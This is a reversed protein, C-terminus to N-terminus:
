GKMIHRLLLALYRLTPIPRLLVTIQSHIKKKYRLVAGLAYIGIWGYIFTVATGYILFLWIVVEYIIHSFELMSKEQLAYKIIQILEESSTEKPINRGYEQQELACLAEAAHVKIGSDQNNLLQDKLFIQVTNTKRSKKMVKLIEKQVEVPQDPYIEM